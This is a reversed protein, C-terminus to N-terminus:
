ECGKQKPNTKCLRWAHFMTRIEGHAQADAFGDVVTIQVDLRCDSKVFEAMTRAYDGSLRGTFRKVVETVIAAYTRCEDV